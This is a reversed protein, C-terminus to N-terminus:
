APPTAEIVERIIERAHAQDEPHVMIREAPSSGRVTRYAIENERLCARLSDALQADRGSWVEVTRDEEDWEGFNDEAALGNLRVTRQVGLASEPDVEYEQQLEALIKQARSADTEPIEVVYRASRLVGHYGPERTEGHRPIGAEALGDLLSDFFDPHDGEWLTTTPFTEEAQDLSHLLIARCDPCYTFSERYEAKCLPCFM